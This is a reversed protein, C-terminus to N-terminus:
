RQHWFAAAAIWPPPLPRRLRQRGCPQTGTPKVRKEQGTPRNVRASCRSFITCEQSIPSAPTTTEQTAPHDPSLFNRLWVASTSRAAPQVAFFDTPRPHLHLRECLDRPTTPNQSLWTFFDLHVIAACLCDVAALCDRYRYIAASDHNPTQMLQSLWLM